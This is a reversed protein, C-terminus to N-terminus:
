IIELIFGCLKFGCGGGGACPECLIEIEENSDVVVSNSKQTYYPTNSALSSYTIVDTTNGIISIDGAM